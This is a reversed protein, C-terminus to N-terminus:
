LEASVDCLESLVIPVTGETDIQNRGPKEIQVNKISVSPVTGITDGM